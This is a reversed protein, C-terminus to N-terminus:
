RRQLIWKHIEALTRQWRNADNRESVFSLFLEYFINKFIDIQEIRNHFYDDKNKGKLTNEDMKLSRIAFTDAELLFSFKTKESTALSIAAKKLKKGALLSTKIEPSRIPLGNRLTIEEAGSGAMVLPGEIMIGIEGYKESKFIGTREESYFWLWTLFERGASVEDFADERKHGEPSFDVPQWNKTHVGAEEVALTEPTIMVPAIQTTKIFMTKFMDASSMSICDAYITHEDESLVFSIGRLSVPMQQLLRKSVDKKIESREARSLFPKKSDKLLLLEEMTCEAKLLSSPVKKQAILLTLKLHSATYGNEETIPLDLFHRGGVWGKVPEESITSIPPAANKAFANLINHSLRSPLKFIRFSFPGRELAMRNM